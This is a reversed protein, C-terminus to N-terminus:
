QRWERSCICCKIFKTMPEDASRTQLEYYTCERKRCKPNPCIFMDTTARMTNGYQEKEYKERKLAMAAQYREAYFDKVDMECLREITLNGNLLWRMWKPETKVCFIVLRTRRGMETYNHCPTTTCHQRHLEALVADTRADVDARAEDGIVNWEEDVDHPKIVGAETLARAFALVVRPRIRRSYDCTSYDCKNM